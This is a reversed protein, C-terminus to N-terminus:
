LVVLKQTYVPGSGSSGSSLRIFYMGGPLSAPISFFETQSKGTLEIKRQGILAGAANFVALSFPGVRGMDLSLRLQAGRPAPNPYVSLAKKIGCFILTDSLLRKVTDMATFKEVRIASVAGVLAFKGMTGYSKVVVEPLVPIQPTLSVTLSKQGMQDKNLTITRTIYGVRSIEIKIPERGVVGQLSCEGTSDTTFAQRSHVNHVTAYSVPVQTVSDVISIDLTDRDPIIQPAIMGLTVMEADLVRPMKKVARKKVLKSIVTKPYRQQAQGRASILMGVLALRWVVSWPKRRTEKVPRFDRNLQDSAFRGCIKKGPDSLYSLVQQDSMLTFDVVTKCCSSCFRGNGTQEMNEWNEGCPEPVLIQLNKLM